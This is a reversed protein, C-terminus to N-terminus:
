NLRRWIWPMQFIGSWLGIKKNRAIKEEPLYDKSYRRYALAWGSKVMMQNINESDAYCISISRRYRDKGKRNCNVKKNRIIKKLQDKAKEGCKYDKGKKDKCIQKKEPADIGYLRIKESHIRITDGDIIKVDARIPCSLFFFIFFLIKRLTKLKKTKTQYIM